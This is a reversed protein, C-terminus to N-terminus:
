QSPSRGTADDSGALPPSPLPIKLCPGRLKREVQRLIWRCCPFDAMAVDFFFFFFFIAFYRHSCSGRIPARPMLKSIRSAGSRHKTVAAPGLRAAAAKAGVGAEINHRFARTPFVASGGIAYPVRESRTLLGALAHLGPSTGDTFLQQAIDRILGRTASPETRIPATISRLTRRM